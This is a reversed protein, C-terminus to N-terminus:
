TGPPRFPESVARFRSTGAYAILSASPPSMLSHLSFVERDATILQMM